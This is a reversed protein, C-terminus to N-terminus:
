HLSKVAAPLSKSGVKPVPSTPVRVIVVESSSLVFIRCPEYRMVISPCNASLALEFVAIIVQSNLSGHAPTVPMLAGDSVETLIL